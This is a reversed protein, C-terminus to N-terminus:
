KVRRLSALSPAVACRLCGVRVGRTVLMIVVDGTRGTETEISTAFSPQSNSLKARWELMATYSAVRNKNTNDLAAM